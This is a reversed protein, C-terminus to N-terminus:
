GIMVGEEMREEEERRARTELEIDEEEQDLMSYQNNPQQSSSVKLGERM